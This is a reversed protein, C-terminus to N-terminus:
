KKTRKSKKRGKSKGRPIPKYSKYPLGKLTPNIDPNDMFLDLGGTVAPAAIDKAANIMQTGIGAPAGLEKLGRAGPNNIYFQLRQTELARQVALNQATNIQTETQAQVYKIQEASVAAQNDTLRTQANVQKIQSALQATKSINSSVDKATNEMRAMAGPPSSAGKNVSLLPNLGAARLDAVERQHATSSMREQFAMQERSLQKNAKNAQKQGFM